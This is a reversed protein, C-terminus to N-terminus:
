TDNVEKLAELMKLLRVKAIMGWGMVDELEEIVEHILEEPDKSFSKDGYELFGKKFKADMEKVLQPFYKLYEM